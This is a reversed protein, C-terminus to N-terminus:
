RAHGSDIADISAKFVDACRLMLDALGVDPAVSRFVREGSFERHLFVARLYLQGFRM